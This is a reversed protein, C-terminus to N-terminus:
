VLRRTPAALARRTEKHRGILLDGPRTVQTYGLHLGFTCLLRLTASTDGVHLTLTAWTYGLLTHHDLQLRM